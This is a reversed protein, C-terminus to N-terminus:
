TFPLPSLNPSLDHITDYSKNWQECNSLGEGRLLALGQRGGLSKLELVEDFLPVV